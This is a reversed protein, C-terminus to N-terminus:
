VCYIQYAESPSEMLLNFADEGGLIRVISYLAPKFDSSDALYIASVAEELSKKIKTKQHNEEYNAVSYCRRCNDFNDNSIM